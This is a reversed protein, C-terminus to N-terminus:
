ALRGKANISPGSVTQLYDYSGHTGDGGVYITNGQKPIINVRDSHTEIINGYQDAITVGDSRFQVYQKPTPSQVAHHLIGDALSGRRKSGPAAQASTSKFTSIDRDAVSLVMMDGAVPDSIVAGNASHIRSVPVGYVVGHATRNGLGDVQDILPQVDATPAAGVGGGYVKVVKVPITTRREDHASDVQLRHSNYDSGASTIAQHGTYSTTDTM